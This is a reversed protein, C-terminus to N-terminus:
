SVIEAVCLLAANYGAIETIARQQSVLGDAALIAAAEADTINSTFCTAIAEAQAQEFGASINESTIMNQLQELASQALSPSAILLMATAVTLSRM